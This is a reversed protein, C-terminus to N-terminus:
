DDIEDEKSKFIRCEIIDDGAALYGVTFVRALSIGCPLEIM